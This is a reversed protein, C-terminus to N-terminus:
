RAATVPRILARRDKIVAIPVGLRELHVRTEELAVFYQEYHHCLWM